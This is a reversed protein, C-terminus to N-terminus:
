RPLTEPSAPATASTASRAFTRTASCGARRCAWRDGPEAAYFRCGTRSCRTSRPVSRRFTHRARRGVVSGGHRQRGVAIEQDTPVSAAILRGVVLRQVQGAPALSRTLPIRGYRQQAIRLLRDAIGHDQGHCIARDPDDPPADFRRLRQESVGAPVRRAQHVPGGAVIPAGPRRVTQKGSSVAPQSGRLREIRRVSPVVMTGTLSSRFLRSRDKKRMVFSLPAVQVRESFM